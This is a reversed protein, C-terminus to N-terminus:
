PGGEFWPSVGSRSAFGGAAARTLRQRKVSMWAGPPEGMPVVWKSRQSAWLVRANAAAIPAADLCPVALIRRRGSDSNRAQLPRPPKSRGQRCTRIYRADARTLPECRLVQSSGSGITSPVGCSRSADWIANRRRFRSTALLFQIQDLEGGALHCLRACTRRLDHPALKDINARAAAM